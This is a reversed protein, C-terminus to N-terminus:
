KGMVMPITIDQNTRMCDKDCNSGPHLGPCSLDIRLSSSRNHIVRLHSLFLEVKRMKSADFPISRCCMDYEKLHANM